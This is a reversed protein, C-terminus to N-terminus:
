LLKDYPVKPLDNINGPFMGNEKVMMKNYIIKPVVRNFKREIKMLKIRRFKRFDAVNKIKYKTVANFETIFDELYGVNKTVSLTKLWEMLAKYNQYAPIKSIIQYADEVSKITEGYKSAEMNIEAIYANQEFSALLYAILAPQSEGNSMARLTENYGIKKSNDSLSEAGDTRRMYDEYSHTLEHGIRSQTLNDINAINIHIVLPDFKMTGDHYKFLRSENPSYGALTDGKQSYFNLLISNVLGNEKAVFGNIFPVRKINDKSIIITRVRGLIELSLEGCGNFLGYNGSLEKESIGSLSELILGKSANYYCEIFLHRLFCEDIWDM